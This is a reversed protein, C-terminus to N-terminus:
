QFTTRYCKFIGKEARGQSRHCGVRRTEGGRIATWRPSRCTDWMLQYEKPSQELGQQKKGEEREKLKRLRERLKM